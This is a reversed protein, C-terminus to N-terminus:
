PLAFPQDPLPTDPSPWETLPTALRHVALSYIGYRRYMARTRENSEFGIWHPQPEGIIEIIRRLNDEKAEHPKGEIKRFFAGHPQWGTVEEIRTLTADAYQIPRATTLAVIADYKRALDIIWTRYTEKPIRNELRTTRHWPEDIAFTYHLDLLLLPRESM